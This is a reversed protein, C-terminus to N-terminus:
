NVIVSALPSNYQYYSVWVDMVITAGEANVFNSGGRVLTFATNALGNITFSPTGFSSPIAFILYNGDGGFSTLSLNRNDQLASNALALIDSDLIPADSLGDKAITGWFM